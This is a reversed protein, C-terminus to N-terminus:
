TLGELKCLDMSGERSAGFRVLKADDSEPVALQRTAVQQPLAWDDRMYVHSTQVDSLFHHISKLPDKKNRMTWFGYQFFNKLGCAQLFCGESPFANCLLSGVYGQECRDAVVEDCQHAFSGHSLSSCHRVEIEITEPPVLKCFCPWWCPINM